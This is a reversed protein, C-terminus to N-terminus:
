GLSLVKRLAQLITAAPDDALKMARWAIIKDPRV